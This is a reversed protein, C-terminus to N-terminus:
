PMAGLRGITGATVAIAESLSVGCFSITFAALVAMKLRTNM